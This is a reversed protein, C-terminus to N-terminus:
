TTEGEKLSDIYNKFDCLGFVNQVAFELDEDDLEDLEEESLMEVNILPENIPIRLQREREELIYQFYLKHEAVPDSEGTLIGGTDWFEAIQYFNLDQM